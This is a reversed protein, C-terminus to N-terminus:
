PYSTALFVKVRAPSAYTLNVRIHTKYLGTSAKSDFRNGLIAYVYLCIWGIERIKAVCLHEAFILKKLLM